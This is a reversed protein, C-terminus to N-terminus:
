WGPLDQYENRESASVGPERIRGQLGTSSCLLGFNRGFEGRSSSTIQKFTKSCNKSMGAM